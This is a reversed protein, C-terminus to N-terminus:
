TKLLRFYNIFIFTIKQNISINLNADDEYKLCDFFILVNKYIKLNSTNKFLKRKAQYYFFNKVLEFLSNSDKFFDDIIKRIDNHDLDDSEIIRNIRDLLKMGDNKIIQFFFGPKGNSYNYIKEVSNDESKNLNESLFKKFDEYNLNNFKLKVCRSCITKPLTKINHSILIIITKPPPEEITKLLANKINSNLIDFNDVLIYKNVLSNQNTLNIDVLLNRIEDLRSIDSDSNILYINSLSLSNIKNIKENTLKESEYENYLDKSITMVMFKKALLSKGIGREGFFIWSHPFNGSYSNLLLSLQKEHGYINKNFIQM